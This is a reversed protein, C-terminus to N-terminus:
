IRTVAEMVKQKGLGKYVGVRKMEDGEERAIDQGDV